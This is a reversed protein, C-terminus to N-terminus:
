KKTSFKALAYLPCFGISGTLLMIAGLAYVVWMWVGTAVGSLGLLFFVLALVFRAGRDWGALNSNM